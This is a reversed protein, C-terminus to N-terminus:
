YYNKFVLRKRKYIVKDFKDVYLIEMENINSNLESEHIKMNMFQYYKYDFVSDQIQFVENSTNFLSSGYNNKKVNINILFFCVITFIVCLIIMAVVIEIITSSRIRKM